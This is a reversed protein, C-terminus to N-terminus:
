RIASSAVPVSKLTRPKLLKTHREGVHLHVVEGPQANVYFVAVQIEHGHNGAAHQSVLKVPQPDSDVRWGKPVPQKVVFVVPDNSLNQLVFGEEQVEVRTRNLEDGDISEEVHESHLVNEFHCIDSDYELKAKKKSAPDAPALLIRCDSNIDIERVIPYAPRQAVAAPRMPIVLTFMSAVSLIVLKRCFRWMRFM